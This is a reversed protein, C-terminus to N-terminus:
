DIKIKRKLLYNYGENFLKLKDEYSANYSIENVNLRIINSNNKLKSKERVYMPLQIIGVLYVFINDSELMSDGLLSIGIYKKNNMNISFNDILGGDMYTYEEYIFEGFIIPINCSMRLADLCSLNPFNTYSINCVSTPIENKKFRYSICTLKKNFMFYLEELTPIFYLKDFTMQKLINNIKDYNVIGNKIIINIIEKINKINYLCLSLINNIEPTIDTKSIYEFIEIPKYGIILLYCIISGISTGIYDTIYDLQNSSHLYHLCGLQAIGKFGGGSLVLTEYNM